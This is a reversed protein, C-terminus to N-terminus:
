DEQSQYLFEQVNGVEIEKDEYDKNELSHLLKGNVNIEIESNSIPNEETSIIINTNDNNDNNFNNQQINDNNNSNDDEEIEDEDIYCVIDNDKSPKFLLEYWKVRVQPSYYFFIISVFTGSQTSLNIAIQEYIYFYINKNNDNMMYLAINLILLPVWCLLLISKYLLTTKCVMLENRSVTNGDRYIHNNICRTLYVLILCCILNILSFCLLLWMETEDVSGNFNCHQGGVNENRLGFSVNILPLFVFFTSLSWCILHISKLKLWVRKYLILSYLQYVLAVTFLWSAVNFERLLFSQIICVNSNYSPYGFSYGIGVLFDCLSIFFLIHSFPKCTRLMMSPFAVGTM